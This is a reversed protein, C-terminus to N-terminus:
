RDARRGARRDRHGCRRTPRCHEVRNNRIEQAQWKKAALWRLGCSAFLKSSFEGLMEDFTASAGAFSIYDGRGGCQCRTRDRIGHAEEHQWSASLKALENNGAAAGVIWGQEGHQGIFKAGQMQGNAGGVFESQGGFGFFGGGEREHGVLGPVM